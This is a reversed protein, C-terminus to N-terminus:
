SFENEWVLKYGVSRVTVISTKCEANAFKKRIEKVHIDLTRTEGMFEEGWVKEFIEEREVVKEANKVLLKLLNYEKITFNQLKGNLWIEHKVDDVVIDHYEWRKTVDHKKTKRLNAKVRAILEFVGFPKSIYDDAGLNLGKVKSMEENKASVMIVPVNENGIKILKLIEYGDMGDLMIDLLFLDPTEDKLAKFMDEGNEFCKVDFEDSLAYKYLERLPAEDEVVYILDKM